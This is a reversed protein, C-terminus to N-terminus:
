NRVVAEVDHARGVISNERLSYRRPRFGRLRARRNWSWRFELDDFFVLIYCGLLVLDRM